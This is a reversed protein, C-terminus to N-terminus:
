WNRSQLQKGSYNVLIILHKYVGHHSHIAPDVEQHHLHKSNFIWSKFSEIQILHIFELLQLDMKSIKPKLLGQGHQLIHRWSILSESIISAMARMRQEVLSVYGRKLPAFVSVDLPQLLHSSHAPMCIPIINTQTCIEDFQPTLHSGHGDLVLLQYAGKRRKETEPIASSRWPDEQKVSKGWAKQTQTSEDGLGLLGPPFWTSIYRGCALWAPASFLLIVNSTRGSQLPSITGLVTKLYQSSWFVISAYLAPLSSLHVWPWSWGSAWKRSEHYVCLLLWPYQFFSLPWIRSSIWLQM